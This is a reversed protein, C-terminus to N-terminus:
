HIGIRGAAAQLDSRERNKNDRDIAIQKATQKKDRLKPLAKLLSCFSLTVKEGYFEDAIFYELYDEFKSQDGQFTDILEDRATREFNTMLPTRAEGPEMKYFGARFSVMSDIFDNAFMMCLAHKDKPKEPPSASESIEKNEKETNIIKETNILSRNVQIQKVTEQKVSVRNEQTETSKRRKTKGIVFQEFHLPHEHIIYESGMIHGGKDRSRVLELYGAIRLEKFYGAVKSRGDPSNKAVEVIFLDWDDPKTLAYFLVGRAGYSLRKDTAPVNSVTTFERQKNVRFIKKSKIRTM